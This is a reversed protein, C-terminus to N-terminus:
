RRVREVIRRVARWVDAPRCVGVTILAVTAIYGGMAILLDGTWAGVFSVALCPVSLVILTWPILHRM